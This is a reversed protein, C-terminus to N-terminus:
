GPQGADKLSGIFFLLRCLKDNASADVATCMAVCVKRRTPRLRTRVFLLM